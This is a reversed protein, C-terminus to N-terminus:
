LFHYIKPHGTPDLISGFHTYFFQDFISKIKTDIGLGNKQNQTSKRELFRELILTEPDSKKVKDHIHSFHSKSRGEWRKAINKLKSLM